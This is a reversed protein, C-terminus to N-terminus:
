HKFFDAVKKFFNESRPNSNDSLSKDLDEIQLHKRNLEENIEIITKRLGEIISKLNEFNLENLIPRELEFVDSFHQPTLDKLLKRISTGISDTSLDSNLLIYFPFIHDFEEPKFFFEKQM